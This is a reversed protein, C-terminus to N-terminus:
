AEDTIDTNVGVMGLFEGNPAFRPEARTRLIRVVGDARRYRAEVTFARREAMAVAFTGFLQEQDEPLLTSSWTFGPIDAPEVGWFTRQAKNLYVCRGDSDGMWVMDPLAEAMPVLPGLALETLGPPLESM